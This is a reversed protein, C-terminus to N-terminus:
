EEDEELEVQVEELVENVEELSEAIERPADYDDALEMLERLADLLEKKQWDYMKKEMSCLFLMQAGPPLYASQELTELWIRM